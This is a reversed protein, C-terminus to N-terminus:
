EIRVLILLFIWSFTVQILLKNESVGHVRNDSTVHNAMRDEYKRELCPNRTSNLVPVGWGMNQAFVLFIDCNRM